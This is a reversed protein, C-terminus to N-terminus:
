QVLVIQRGIARQLRRAGDMGNGWIEARSYALTHVGRVVNPAIFLKEAIFLADGWYASYWNDYGWMVIVETPIADRIIVDTHPNYGPPSYSTIVGRIGLLKSLRMADFRNFSLLVAM